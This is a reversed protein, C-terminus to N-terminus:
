TNAVAGAAPAAASAGAGLGPADEPLVYLYGQVVLEVDGENVAPKGGSPEAADQGAFTYGTVVYLREGNQVRDLFDVAQPYGGLVTMEFPVAVLGPVGVVVPEAPEVPAAADAAGDAAEGDEAAPEAAAPEPTPALGVFTEPVGPTVSVVFVGAATAAEDIQRLYAPQGDEAPIQKRLAALEARYQDLNAYQEKLTDLRKQHVVNQARVVEADDRATQAETLKPSIALLWTMGLIVLALFVAGIVWPTSNGKTM